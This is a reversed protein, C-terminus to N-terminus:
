QLRRLGKYLLRHCGLLGGSRLRVAQWCNGSRRCWWCCCCGATSTSRSGNLLVMWCVVEADSKVLGLALGGELCLRGGTLFLLCPLSHWGGSKCSDALCRWRAATPL